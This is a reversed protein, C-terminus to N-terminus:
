WTVWSYLEQAYEFHSLMRNISVQEAINKGASNMCALFQPCGLHGEVFSHVHFINYMICWAISYLYLSVSFM